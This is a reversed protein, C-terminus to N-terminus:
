GLLDLMKDVWNPNHMPQVPGHKHFRISADCYPRPATWHDPKSKFISAPTVIPKRLQKRSGPMLKLRWYM